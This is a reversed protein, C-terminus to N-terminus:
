DVADVSRRMGDRADWYFTDLAKEKREAYDTANSVLVYNFRSWNRLAQWFRETPHDRCYDTFSDLLDRSQM